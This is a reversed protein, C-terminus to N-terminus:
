GEGPKLAGMKERLLNKRISFQVKTKEMDSKTRELREMAREKANQARILDIEETKEAADTVIRARKGDMQLIGGHVAFAERSKDSKILELPAIDLAVLLPARKDLIGMSGDKTWFGVYQVDGSWVTREPSLIELYFNAAM